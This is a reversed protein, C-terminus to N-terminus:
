GRPGFGRYPKLPVLATLELMGAALLPLTALSARAEAEDAAEIMVCAGPLDGRSWIQRVIGEAYLVRVREAEPELLPAFDADSFRETLRRLLAIFQM